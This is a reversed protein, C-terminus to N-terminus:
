SPPNVGELLGCAISLEANLISGGAAGRVLNHSLTVFKWARRAGPKEDGFITEERLRGVSIAMGNELDRHHLPQPFGPEEFVHVPQQPASPLELEQPRARFKRWAELVEDRTAARELEISVCLTHGHEVPVRTCTASVELAAHQISQEDLIVGLIKKPEAALKEEEGGILPVVNGDINLPAGNQMGAGSTAQLSVLHVKRLGFRRVLPALSLTLGITSCNPNTVIQGPTEQRLALHEANVEPVVLPVHPDMRHSSANSFVHTGTQALRQEIEGAVSADLASFAIACDTIQDPIAEVEISAIGDPIPTSQLWNAAESYPKGVSKPSAFLQTIQFWPHGALLCIFRQGVAGTAGLIAIPILSM